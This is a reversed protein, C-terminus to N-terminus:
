SQKEQGEVADDPQGLKKKQRDHETNAAPLFASAASSPAFLLSMAATAARETKGDSLGKTFTYRGSGNTVCQGALSISATM